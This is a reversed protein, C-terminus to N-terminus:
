ESRAKQQQQQKLPSVQSFCDIEEQKNNMSLKQLSDSPTANLFTKAVTIKLYPFTM